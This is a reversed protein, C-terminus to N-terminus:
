KCRIGSVVSKSRQRVCDDQINLFGTVFSEYDDLVEGLVGFAEM